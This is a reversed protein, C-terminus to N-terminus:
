GGRHPGVDFHVNAGFIFQFEPTGPDFGENALFFSMKGTFDVAVADTFLTYGGHLGLPVMIGGFDLITFAIHAGAFGSDTINYTAAIPIDMGVYQNGGSHLLMELEVGTDIRLKEIFRFTVPLGFGLGFENSGTPFSMALQGGVEVWDRRLFAYRGYLAMDGYDGVPSLVLPLAILGVELEDFIGYSAGLGLLTANANSGAPGYHQVRIGYNGGYALPGLIVGSDNIGHEYPGLDIRLTGESLTIGRAAYPADIGEPAAEDETTAPEGTGWADDAPPEAAPEAAAGPDGVEWPEQASAKGAFPAALALAAVLAIFKRSQM